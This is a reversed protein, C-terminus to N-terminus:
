VGKMSMFAPVIIMVLTVILILIMPIVLKTGVREGKIRIHKREREM